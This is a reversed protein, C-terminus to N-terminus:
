QYNPPNGPSKGGHDDGLHTNTAPLRLQSAAVAQQWELDLGVASGPPAVACGVRGGAHSVSFAPGGAWSPKSGEAFRLAGWPPRGHGAVASASGLLALGLLSALRAGDDDLRRLREARAPPLAALWRRVADAAAAAPVECHHLIVADRPM